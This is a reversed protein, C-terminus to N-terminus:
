AAIAPEPELINHAPTSNRAEKMVVEVTVPSEASEVRCGIKTALGLARVHRVAEHWAQDMPQNAQLVFREVEAKFAPFDAVEEAIDYLVATVAKRFEAHAETPNKGEASVDGPQVGYVCWAKSGEKSALIRGHATVDALFGRGYVADHFTFLFPLSTLENAM